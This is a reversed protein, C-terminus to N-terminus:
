RTGRQRQNKWLRSSEMIEKVLEERVSETLDVSQDELHM